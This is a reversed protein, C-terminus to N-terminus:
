AQRLPPRPDAQRAPPPAAIWWYMAGTLAGTLFFLLAIRIELPSAERARDLGKAARVIWPSAGALTASVGSSWLLSRAGAIEGILAALALPAVCTAIMIAWLIFGFTALPDSAGARADEEIFAFIGSIAVTFGADRIAPDLLAALILFVAGVGVALIFAFVMVVIRRVM